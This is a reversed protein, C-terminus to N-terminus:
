NISYLLIAWIIDTESLIRWSPKEEYIASKEHMMDSMFQFHECQMPLFTDSKFQIFGGVPLNQEM